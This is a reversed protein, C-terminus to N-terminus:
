FPLDNEEVKPEEVKSDGPSESEEPTEKDFDVRDGARGLMKVQQARVETIYKTVNDKDEYQRTQLSGEVYIQKGKRLYENLVEAQRGWIVIRHWETREQREGSKDTWAENTAISINMVPSGNPTYRLEPDRGLHGILIVKNVSSSM